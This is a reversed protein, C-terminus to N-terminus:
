ARKLAHFIQSKSDIFHQNPNRKSIYGIKLIPFHIHASFLTLSCFHNIIDRSHFHKSKLHFDINQSWLWTNTFFSHLLAIRYPIIRIEVQSHTLDRSSLSVLCAFLWTYLAMAMAMKVKWIFLSSIINIWNVIYLIHM